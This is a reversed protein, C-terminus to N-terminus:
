MITITTIVGRWKKLKGWQGERRRKGRMNM